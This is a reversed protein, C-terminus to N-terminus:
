RAPGRRAAVGRLNGDADSWSTADGFGAGALSPGLLADEDGGLELLLWGGPALLRQSDEVVRRLVALGDPGGDLAVRPEYRQVDSPLFGLAGTPVYPPVATVVDACGDRLPSGLDGIVARVGNRRACAVARSDLDVGVVAAEPAARACQLAVAGAGTCLDVGVAGRGCSALLAAARQALLETQPRPVFVGPDVRVDHGCFRTTGTIWALPEGAERRRLAAELTAVGAGGMAALLEDAEEDPAVCGAAALRSAVRAANPDPSRRPFPAPGDVM